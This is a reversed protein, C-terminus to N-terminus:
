ALGFGVALMCLYLTAVQDLHVLDRHRIGNDIAEKTLWPGALGVLAEAVVVIGAFLKQGRYPRLFGMLRRMLRHDYRRGLVEEEHIM